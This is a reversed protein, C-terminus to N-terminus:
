WVIPDYPAKRRKFEAEIRQAHRRWDPQERAEHKKMGASLSDDVALANRVGEYMMELGDLSVEPWEPLDSLNM